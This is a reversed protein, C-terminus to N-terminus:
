AAPRESALFALSKRGKPTLDVLVSRRDAQDDKRAAYGEEELRDIARTISPKPCGIEAALGRITNTGDLLIGAVRVQRVTLNTLAPSALMKLFPSM